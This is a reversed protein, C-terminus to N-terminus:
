KLKSLESTLDPHNRNDGKKHDIVPIDVFQTSTEISKSHTQSGSQSKKVGYNNGYRSHQNNMPYKIVKDGKFSQNKINMDPKGDGCTNKLVSTTIVVSQSLRTRVQDNSRKFVKRFALPPQKSEFKSMKFRVKRRSTKPM